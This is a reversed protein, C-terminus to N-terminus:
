GSPTTKVRERPAERRRWTPLGKTQFTVPHRLSPDVLLLERFFQRHGTKAPHVRHVRELGKELLM